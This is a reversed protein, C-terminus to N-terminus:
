ARLLKKNMFGRIQALQDKDIGGTVILSAGYGLVALPASLFPSFGRMAWAIAAMVGGALVALLLSKILRRNFIGRPMLAIGFVVVLTESAVAAWCLGLSGNGYRQQFFPVLLPDLVLSSVVCIFQVITWGKKRGTAVVCTGIPMSFYVLFLFLSLIRLDDGAPGFSGKGFISVGIDAYLACGLAAPVVVLAVGQLSGVLVRRFDEVDETWLRCLTPYIANIMASAPFLLVGILRRAAAFWGMVEPPASKSLFFVDIMPQLAMALGFFVFPTGQTSLSKLAERDFRLKGVGVPSLARYAIVLFVVCVAAQVALTIRLRAGLWLVLCSLGVTLFQQAVHIYAPIDTREFGRITDKCAAVFSILANCLFTLGLAWQFEGRYGMVWCVPALVAYVIVSLSARWLFSTGLLVGAISRDRAILAPLAGSHGWDVALFAFGCITMAMYIYGLDEPGLYRGIAANMVISLPITLAQSVTLYFTNRLVLRGVGGQKAPESPSSQAQM